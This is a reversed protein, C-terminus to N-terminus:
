GAVTDFAWGDLRFCDFRDARGLSRDGCHERLVIVSLTRFCNENGLGTPQPFTIISNSYGREGVARAPKPIRSLIATIAV